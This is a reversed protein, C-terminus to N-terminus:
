RPPSGGPGSPLPLIMDLLGTAAPAEGAGNPARGRDPGAEGALLRRLVGLNVPKVLYQDFGAELAARVHGADGFGTVAVLRPVGPGAERRVRGALACGDMRPLELDALVVDPRYELAMQLASPGDYAARAEHGWLRLLLALSDATDRSDDVVLIRLRRGGTVQAARNDALM